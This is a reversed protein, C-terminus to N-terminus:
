GADGKPGCACAPNACGAPECAEREGLLKVIKANLYWGHHELHWTNLAVISRLGLPGREPHMVQRSWVGEHLGGLWEGVWQRLTYVAAVFAGVPAAAANPSTAGSPDAGYLGADVWAQEDWVGLVSGPEAAVRRIRHAFVVEADALHGLLVRIPWVGVGAESAWAQDLQEDTLEFVRDDFCAVSARYRRVLDQTGLGVLQDWLGTTGDFGTLRLGGATGTQTM